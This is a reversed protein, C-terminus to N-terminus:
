MPPHRYVVTLGRQAWYAVFFVLAAGVLPAFDARGLRLPVPRLPALLNRGTLGVFSWFPQNGFYVYSSLLYLGLLVGILYKWLLYSGLGVAVAQEIRAAPSLAARILGLRVLLLDLLFWAIGTVLFPLLAKVPWPWRDIRGLYFRVLRQVPDEDAGHGNVLSPLLLWLYFVGLSGAFSLLSFLVMLGFRDSRFPVANDIGGLHLSPTWDVAAGIQWYLVARLFLLGALVLLFHWRKFRHPEARRLTGALTAPTTKVLPDLRVSRWNVWLLVGALNLILDTLNLSRMRPM